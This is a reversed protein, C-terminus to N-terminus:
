LKVNSAYYLIYVYEVLNPERLLPAVPNWYRYETYSDCCSLRRGFNTHLNGLATNAYSIHRTLVNISNSTM